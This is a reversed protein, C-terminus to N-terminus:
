GDYAHRTTPSSSSAAAPPLRRQWREVSLQEAREIVREGGDAQEVKGVASLGARLGLAPDLRV